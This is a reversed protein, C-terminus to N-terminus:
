DTNFTRRFLLSQDTNQPYSPNTFNQIPQAAQPHQSQLQLIGDDDIVYVNYTPYLQADIKASTQGASFTIRSGIDNWTVKGPSALTNFAAVAKSDPSGENILSWETADNKLKGNIPGATGPFRLAHTVPDPTVGIAVDQPKAQVSEMDGGNMLYKIQVWNFLKYQTSMGEFTNVATADAFSDPPKPNAAYKFQWDLIYRCETPTLNGSLSPRLLSGLSLQGLYALCAGQQGISTFNHDVPFDYLVDAGVGDASLPVGNTDIWAVVLVQDTRIGIRVDQTADTETGDDWDVTCTVELTAPQAQLRDGGMSWTNKDNPPPPPYSSSGDGNAEWTYRVPKASGEARCRLILMDSTSKKSGGYAMYPQDSSPLLTEQTMKPDDHNFLDGDIETTVRTDQSLTFEGSESPRSYTGDIEDFGGSVSHTGQMTLGGGALIISDGNVVVNVDYTGGPHTDGATFVVNAKIGKQTVQTFKCTLEQNDDFNKFSPTVWTGSWSGSVWPPLKSSAHAPRAVVALVLAILAAALCGPAAALLQSITRHHFM